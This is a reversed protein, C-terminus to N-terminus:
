QRYICQIPCKFEFHIHQTLTHTQIQTFPFLRIHLTCTHAHTQRRTHTCTHTHLTNLYPIMHFHCAALGTASDATLLNWIHVVHEVPKYVFAIWCSCNMTSTWVVVQIVHFSCCNSFIVNRWFLTKTLQIPAKPSNRLKLWTLDFIGVFTSRSRVFEFATWDNRIFNFTHFQHFQINVAFYLFPWFGKKMVGKVEMKMKKLMEM